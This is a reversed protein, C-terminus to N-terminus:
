QQMRLNEYPWRHLHWGHSGTPFLGGCSLGPVKRGRKRSYFVDNMIQERPHSFTRPKCCGWSGWSTKGQIVGMPMCSSPHKNLLSFWNYCFILSINAIVAACPRLRWLARLYHPPPQLLLAPAQSLTGRLNTPPICTHPCRSGCSVQIQIALVSLFYESLSLVVSKKEQKAPNRPIDTEPGGPRSLSQCQSFGGSSFLFHGANLWCGGGCRPRGSGSGKAGAHEPAAAALHTRQGSPSASM